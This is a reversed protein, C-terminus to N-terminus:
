KVISIDGEYLIVEGDIFRIEAMYTYVGTGMLKGKFTGDWGANEQGLPMNLGEFLLNGWRDFVLLKTIIEAAPGGFITFRDNAGDNNPSFANPVFIPRVKNVTITIDDTADCDDQNRVTVLYTTTNLPSATPNPCDTCSLRETPNWEWTVTASNSIAQLDISTGLDIITDLGADVLLPPPQNIVATTTNSCGEADEITITYNGAPVDVFTAGGQFINNGLSFEYPETGGSGSVTITGTSDGNCIVDVAELLQILVPDPETIVITASLTCQNGDTVTVTYSGNPLDTIMEKNQGNSWAFTFNGVGGSPIATASGDAVGNCSANTSDFTIQLPPYDEMNFDFSGICLNADQVDVRYMGAQLGSLSNANQFGRGDNFDYQFPGIGNTVEVRISGNSGGNCSPPTVAQVAPNLHLELERLPIMLMTDCNNSDRVVVTYDGRMINALTNSAQFGQNQWNFQYPPTGGTVNITIAGDMGGGCTPNTILTDFSIPPPGTITFNLVTDCTANDTVTVMYDGPMLGTLDETTTSDNWLYSYPPYNTAINLDIAGNDASPCTLNRSTGSAASFHDPCCEVRITKIKTVICGKDSTVTLIISKTGAKNFTVTHAGKQDSSAMSATPGFSWNYKTITGLGFNSADTFTIPQGVCITSDPESTTFDAEPGQFEGSGGFNISFGNDKSTYNNIMLAYSRGAVMQVPALFNDQRPDNCAAPESDDSSGNRLGTIGMCRSPFFNDGSAMCRVVKKNRCDRAGQPLEYVVFDLDDSPNLPTLIFTLSGNTAATWAFWTSNSEVNGNGINLCDADNAERPDNGAGTVKQVAFANKDCLVSSIVCDSGPEAPPNYNNMCVQFTGTRGGRGQVRVYYTEGIALGGKYLEIVNNGTADSECQQENITGGCSGTYLAIEPRTLSGGAGQPTNGIITIRVDTAIPTFTFWVDNSANGFCTAAGYGSPTAGVNTFQAINSCWAASPPIAFPSACNDNAPQAFLVIGFLLLIFTATYRLKM